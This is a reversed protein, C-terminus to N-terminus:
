FRPCSKQHGQIPSPSLRNVIVNNLYHNKVAQVFEEEYSPDILFIGELNQLGGIEENWDFIMYDVKVMVGDGKAFM